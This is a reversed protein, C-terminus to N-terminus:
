YEPTERISGELTKRNRKGQHTEPADKLEQIGMPRRALMRGTIQQIVVTPKEEEVVWPLVDREWVFLVREFHESLYPILANGFSDRFVVARPLSEDDVGLAVPLQRARRDEYDALHEPKPQARPSSTVQELREETYV